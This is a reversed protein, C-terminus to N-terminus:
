LKSPLCACYCCVLLISSVVSLAAVVLLVAGVVMGVMKLVALYQDITTKTTEVENNRINEVDTLVKELEGVDPEQGAKLAAEKALSVLQRVEGLISDLQAAYLTKNPFSSWGNWFLARYAKFL